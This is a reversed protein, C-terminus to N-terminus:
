DPKINLERVVKTWRTIESDVYRAFADPAMFEPEAGQSRLAEAVTKDQLSREEARAVGAGLFLGAAGTQCILPAPV